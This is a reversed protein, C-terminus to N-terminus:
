WGVRTGRREDFFCIWSAYTAKSTPKSASTAYTLYELKWNENEGLVVGMANKKTYIPLMTLVAMDELTHVFERVHLM